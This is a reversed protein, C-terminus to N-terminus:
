VWRHAERGAARDTAACLATIGTQQAVGAGERGRIAPKAPLLLTLPTADDRGSEILSAVLCYRLTACCRRQSLSQPVGPEVATAHAICLARVLRASQSGPMAAVADVVKAVDMRDVQVSVAELQCPDGALWRAAHDLIHDHQAAVLLSLDIEKGIVRAWSQEVAMLLKVHIEPKHRQEVVLLWGSRPKTCQFRSAILRATPCRILLPSHLVLIEGVGRYGFRELYPKERESV